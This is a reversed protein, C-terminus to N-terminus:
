EYSVLLNNNKYVFLKGTRVGFKTRFKDKLLNLDIDCNHLEVRLNQDYFWQLEEFNRLGFIEADHIKLGNVHARCNSVCNWYKNMVLSLNYQKKRRGEYPQGLVLWGDVAKMGIPEGHYVINNLENILPQYTEM